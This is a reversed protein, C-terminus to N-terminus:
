ILNIGLIKKYLKKYYFYFFLFFIQMFYIVLYSINFFIFICYNWIIDYLRIYYLEFLM